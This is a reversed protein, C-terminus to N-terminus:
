PEAYQALHDNIQRVMDEVNIGHAMGADALSEGIAHPCGLCHMGHALLIAAASRDMELVEHITTDPTVTM